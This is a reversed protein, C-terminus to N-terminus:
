VSSPAKPTAQAELRADSSFRHVDANNVFVGRVLSEVLAVADPAPGRQILAILGPRPRLSAIQAASTSATSSSPISLQLRKLLERQPAVSPDLLHSQLLTALQTTAAALQETPATIPGELLESIAVCSSASPLESGECRQLLQSLLLTRESISAIAHARRVVDLLAPGDIQSAVIAEVLASPTIIDTSLYELLLPSALSDPTLLDIIAAPIEAPTRCPSAGCAAKSTSEPLGQNAENVFRLWQLCEARTQRAFAGYLCRPRSRLM